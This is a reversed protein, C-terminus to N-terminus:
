AVEESTFTAAQLFEAFAAEPVRFRPRGGGKAIDIAELRGAKILERVHQTTSGLVLAVQGTTLYGGSPAVFPSTM